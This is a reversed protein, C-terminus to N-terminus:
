HADAPNGLHEAKKMFLIPIGAVAFGIVMVWAMQDIAMVFAQKKM